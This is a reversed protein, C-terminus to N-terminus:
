RREIANWLQVYDIIPEDQHLNKRRRREKWHWTVKLKLKTREKNKRELENRDKPAGDVQIYINAKGYNGFKDYTIWDKSCIEEFRTLSTM